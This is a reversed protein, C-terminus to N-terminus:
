TEEKRADYEAVLERLADVVIKGAVAERMLAMSMASLRDRERKLRDREETVRALHRAEAKTM